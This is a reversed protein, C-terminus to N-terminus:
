GSPLASEGSGLWASIQRVTQEPEAVEVVITSYQEHETRICIAKDGGHIDWFLWQGKGVRYYSGTTIVGPIFAGPLRLSRYLDDRAEQPIGAVVGTVHSRAIELRGKFALIRDFGAVRVVLKEDTLEIEAM